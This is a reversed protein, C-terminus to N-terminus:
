TALSSKNLRRTQNVKSNQELYDAGDVTIALKSNDTRLILGKQLLYWITFELHERPRGLLEALEINFIGPEEPEVRRRTYLVELITMRVLRESYFDNDPSAAESILRWRDQKVHHYSVDYKARLEPDSLVRHAESVARFRDPDGTEVNDPHLRQALLRYVRHITDTDANPSLQLTEYYDLSQDDSM